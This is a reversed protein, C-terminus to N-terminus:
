KMKLVSIRDAGLGTAKSVADVVALRVSASDAGECIVLAGLYTPPNIQRVIGRQSRDANTLIVTQVQTKHSENTQSTDSDTQYITEEGVAQTLLVEVDGAGDISSLIGALKEELPVSVAPAADSQTQETESSTKKIFNPSLMLLFGIVLILLVYKYKNLITSIKETIKNLGM